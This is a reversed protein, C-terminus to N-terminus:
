NWEVYWMEMVAIWKFRSAYGTQHFDALVDSLFLAKKTLIQGKYESVQLGDKPRDNFLHM